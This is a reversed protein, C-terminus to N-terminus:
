LRLYKMVTSAADKTRNDTSKKNVRTIKQKANPTTFTPDPLAKPSDEQRWWYKTHSYLPIWSILRSKWGLTTSAHVPIDRIGKGLVDRLPGGVLDGGITAVVPFFINTWVTPGFVASSSPVRIGDKNFSSSQTKQTKRRNDTVQTVPPCRPLEREEVRARFEFGKSRLLSEAHTLPSGLTVFDTVLWNVGRKRYEAGLSMQLAQFKQARANRSEAGAFIEAATEDFTDLVPSTGSQRSVPPEKDCMDWYLRLIDYGIVSGLSHGVVIVRDYEGSDHLKKLLQVGSNRIRNRSDIDRPRPALYRTADSLSAVSFHVISWFALAYLVSLTVFAILALASESQTNAEYALYLLTVATLLGLGVLLRLVWIARKLQGFHKTKRGLLHSLFWNLVSTFHGDVFHNAWYNEYFDTAPRRRSAPLTLRRLDTGESMRDPKNWIVAADPDGHGMRAATKMFGRLTDMPLSEGIGHILIVAQRKAM